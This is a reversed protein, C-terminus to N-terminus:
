RDESQEPKAAQGHRIMGHEINGPEGECRTISKKDADFSVVRQEITVIRGLEELGQARALYGFNRVLVMGPLTSLRACRESARRRATQEGVRLPRAGPKRTREPHGAKRARMRARVETAQRRSM